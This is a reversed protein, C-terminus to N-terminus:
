RPGKASTTRVGVSLTDAAGDRGDARGDRGTRKRIWRPPRKRIVRSTSTSENECLSMLEATASGASGRQSAQCNAPCHFYKDAGITNAKRMARYNHVFDKVACVIQALRQRRSAPCLSRFVHGPGCRGLLNM